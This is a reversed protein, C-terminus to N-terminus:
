MLSEAARLVVICSVVAHQSVISWSSASDENLVLGGLNEENGQMAGMEREEEVVIHGIRVTSYSDHTSFGKIEVNLNRFRSVRQARIDSM